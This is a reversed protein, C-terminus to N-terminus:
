EGRKTAPEAAMLDVTFTTGGVVTPCSVFIWKARIEFWQAPNSATLATSNVKYTASGDLTDLDATIASASGPLAFIDCSNGGAGTETFSFYFDNYGDAVFYVDGSGNNCVGATSEATCMRVTVGRVDSSLKTAQVQAFANPALTVLLVCAALIYRVM